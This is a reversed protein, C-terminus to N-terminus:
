PIVCMNKIEKLRCLKRKEREEEEERKFEVRPSVGVIRMNMHLHSCSGEGISVRREMKVVSGEFSLNAFRLSRRSRHM